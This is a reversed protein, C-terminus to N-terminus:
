GARTPLPQGNVVVKLIFSITSSIGIPAGNRSPHTEITIDDGEKLSRKSWGARVLFAPSALEMTWHQVEGTDGKADMYIVCHPNGWDFKTVTGHLTIIKTMDYGAVGHHAFALGPFALLGAVTVLVCFLKGKM